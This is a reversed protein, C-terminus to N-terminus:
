PRYYVESIGNASAKLEVTVPASDGIRPTIIPIAVRKTITVTFPTRLQMTQASADLWVTDWVVSDPTIGSAETMRELEAQVEPGARGTVEAVHALAKVQANLTQQTTFIPFLCLLTIGVALLVPLMIMLSVAQSSGRKEKLFRKLM